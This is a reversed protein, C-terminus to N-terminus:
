QCTTLTSLEAACESNSDAEANGTLGSTYNSYYYIQVDNDLVNTPVCMGICDALPCVAEKYTGGEGSCNAKADDESWDTDATYDICKGTITCSATVGSSCSIIISVMFTLILLLLKKM